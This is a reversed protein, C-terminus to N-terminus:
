TVFLSRANRAIEDLQGADVNIRAKLRWPESHDQESLSIDIHVHGLSDTSCELSFEGEISAWSKSGPWGRWNEAMWEFLHLLSQADRYAFVKRQARFQFSEIDVAFYEGHGGAERTPLNRFRILASTDASRIILEETM